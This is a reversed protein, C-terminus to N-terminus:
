RRWVIKLFELSPRPTGLHLDDGNAAMDFDVQFRLFALGPVSELADIDPSWASAMSTDPGGQGNSPAGQFTVRISASGPLWDQTSNTVVRFHRPRV